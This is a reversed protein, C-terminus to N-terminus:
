FINQPAKRVRLRSIEAIEQFPCRAFADRDNSGIIGALSVLRKKLWLPILCKKVATFLSSTFMLSQDM